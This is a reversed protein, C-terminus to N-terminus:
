ELSYLVEDLYCVTKRYEGRIYTNCKKLSSFYIDKLQILLTEKHKKIFDSQLSRVACSFYKIDKKEITLYENNLLKNRYFIKRKFAETGTNVLEEFYTYEKKVRSLAFKIKDDQGVISEIMVISEEQNFNMQALYYFIPLHKVSSNLLFTIFEKGNSIKECKLMAEIIRNESLAIEKESIAIQVPAGSVATVEGVISLVPEGEKEVFKGKDVFRIQELIREDIYYSNNTGELKGTASNLIMTNSIGALSIQKIKNLWMENIKNKEEDIIQRLEAYQIETNEAKYRYYIAGIRLKGEIYKKCIIPKEQAEYVEIIGYYTGDYLYVDREFIVQPEFFERMYESWKSLDKELFKKIGKEDLGILEHPKDKIGFIIHGGKNNAMSVMAKAYEPMNGWGFAQKYEIKYGEQTGICDSNKTSKHFIQELRRNNM